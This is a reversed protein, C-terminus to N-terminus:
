HGGLRREVFNVTEPDRQPFLSGDALKRCRKAGNVGNAFSVM